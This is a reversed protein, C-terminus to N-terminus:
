PQTPSLQAALRKAALQYPHSAIQGRQGHEHAAQLLAVELRALTALTSDARRLPAHEAAPRKAAAQQWLDALFDEGVRAAAGLPPNATAAAALQAADRPTELAAIITEAQEAAEEVIGSFDRLAAEDDAFDLWAQAKAWAYSTVPAGGDHLAALRAQLAALRAPQGAPRADAAVKSSSTNVDALEARTLLPLAARFGRTARVQAIWTAYGRQQGAVPTETGAGGMLLEQVRAVQADLWPETSGSVYATRVAELLLLSEARNASTEPLREARRQLDAVFALDQKRIPDSIRTAAPALATVAPKPALTVVGPRACGGALALLALAVWIRHPRSAQNM